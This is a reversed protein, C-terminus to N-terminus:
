LDLETDSERTQVLQSLLTYGVTTREVKEYWASVGVKCIGAHAANLFYIGGKIDRSRRDLDDPVPARTPAVIAHRFNLFLNAYQAAAVALASTPLIKSKSQIPPRSIEVDLLEAARSLSEMPFPGLEIPRNRSPERILM